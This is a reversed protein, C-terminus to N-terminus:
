LELLTKILTDITSIVRANAAYSQEVAMLMQLENDTDVGDALVLENLSQHRASTFSQTLEATQRKSSYDSILAAALDSANHQGGGFSGSAPIREAHLADTLASLIQPNGSTGPSAAGLGDRLHWLAGGQEPDAIPNISIRKALGVTDLPDVPGGAITFLGPDGAPLTPDIAPDSFRDILDRAFGDLQSQARPALEDRIAFLAGLSGGGMQRDDSTSLATGKLSLGSLAGSAQTMDATIIGAGSFTIEAPNGELLVVGGTTYLSIQQQDRQIQRVPVIASLRDVLVQRQDLMASADRGSADQSLITTNLADIQVLTENLLSVQDAIAHDADMRAQQISSSTDNLHTAIASAADRVTSLRAESDPRSAAEVLAAELTVIRASLSGPMDPDGIWGEMDAFFDSRLSANQDAADALRRDQLVTENTLRAIGSVKVGAGGGALTRTTLQVERRAYGETMANATNSAVVEAMRSAANLGSMANSLSRTISM